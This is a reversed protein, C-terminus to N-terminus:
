DGDYFIEERGEYSYRYKEKKEKEVQEKRLEGEIHRAIAACRKAYCCSVTNVTCVEVDNYYTGNMLTKRDNEPEFDPCNECYKAVNLEIM